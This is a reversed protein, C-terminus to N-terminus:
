LLLRHQWFLLSGPPCLLQALGPTPGAPVTITANSHPQVQQQTLAPIWLNPPTTLLPLRCGGRCKIRSCVQNERPMLKKARGGEGARPNLFDESSLLSQIQKRLNTTEEWDKVPPYPAVPQTNHVQPPSQSLLLPPFLMGEKGAM